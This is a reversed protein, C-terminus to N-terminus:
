GKLINNDHSDAISGETRQQSRTLTRIGQLPMLIIGYCTEGFEQCLFIPFRRTKGNLLIYNQRGRPLPPLALCTCRIRRGVSRISSLEVGAAAADYIHKKPCSAPWPPRPQAPCYIMMLSVPGARPVTQPQLQEKSFFVNFTFVYLM